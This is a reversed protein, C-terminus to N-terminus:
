QMTGRAAVIEIKTAASRGDEESVVTLLIPAVMGPGVKHSCVEKFDSGTHRSVIVSGNSDGIAILYLPPTIGSSNVFDGIMKAFRQQDLKRM